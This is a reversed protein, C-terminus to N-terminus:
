VVQYGITFAETGAGLVDGIKIPQNYQRYRVTSPIVPLQPRALSGRGILVDVGYGARIVEVMVAYKNGTLLPLESPLDIISWRATGDKVMAPVFHAMIEVVEDTASLRYVGIRVDTVSAFQQYIVVRKLKIDFIPAIGKGICNGQFNSNINGAEPMAWGGEGGGSPDRWEPFGTFANMTLVQGEAGPDVGEWTNLSRYLISGPKWALNDLLMSMDLRSAMPFVKEGNPRIIVPGKGYVMAMLADRPMLPTGWSNTRFYYLVSPHMRKLAECALKFRRREFLEDETPQRKRSSPWISLVWQGNREYSYFLGKMSPGIKGRSPHGILAM